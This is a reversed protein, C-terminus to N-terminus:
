SRTELSLHSKISHVHINFAQIQHKDIYIIGTSASQITYANTLEHSIVLWYGHM